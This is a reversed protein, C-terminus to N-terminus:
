GKEALFKIAEEINTFLIEGCEPCEFYISANDPYFENQEFFTNNNIVRFRYQMEGSEIYNLYDIEKKCKPCKAM